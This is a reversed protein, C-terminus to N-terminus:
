CKKSLYGQWGGNKVVAIESKYGTNDACTKVAKAVANVDDILGTSHYFATPLRWSAAGSTTICNTFGIKALAEHLKEYGSPWTAGHLEVRAFYNSAM